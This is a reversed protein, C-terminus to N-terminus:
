QRIGCSFKIYGSSIATIYVFDTSSRIGYITKKNKIVPHPTIFLIPCNILPFYFAFRNIERTLIQQTLEFSNGFDQSDDSAICGRYQM